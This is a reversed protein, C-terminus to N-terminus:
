NRGGGQGSDAATHWHRALADLLANLSHDQALHVRQFGAARAAAATPRGLCACPLARLLALDGGEERLRAQANRLISASTFLLGDVAGARLLAALDVGGSGPVNRWAAIACVQAGAALLADRTTSPALDSQPLLVRIGPRLDLTTLLAARDGAPVQACLQAGPLDRAAAASAAGMLAVKAGPLALDLQQLRAALARASNSSTLLLWDFAGAAAQQLAADLAACSALPAVRLCPYALPAAGRERLLATLPAAQHLARTVLVRKGRLSM